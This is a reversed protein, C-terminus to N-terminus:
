LYFESGAAQRYCYLKKIKDKLNGMRIETLINSQVSQPKGHNREIKGPM